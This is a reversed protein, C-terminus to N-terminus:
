GAGLADEYPGVWAASDYTLTAAIFQYYSAM